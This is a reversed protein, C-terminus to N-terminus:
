KCTLGLFPENQPSTWGDATLSVKSGTALIFKKIFEKKKEFNVELKKKLTKRCIPKVDKNLYKLLELFETNEITSFPLHNAIIYKIIVDNATENSFKLQKENSSPFYNTIKKKKSKLM